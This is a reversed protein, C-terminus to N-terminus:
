TNAERLDIQGTVAATILVTRREKLLEISRETKKILDDIHATKCEIAEVIQRQEHLPPLTIYINRFYEWYLRMRFDAIGRSFRRMEEIAMPTRLLLEVYASILEIKPEAVVYAPSVLGDVTVTGFAGQWARMMNYALDNPIVRKYKERDEILSVKREREDASLENDTIGSHISISLVPLAEQGARSVERYLSAIRKIEWHEPVQGLWEVGSDKMKVNPDLGKAVAHTILAQRKERLLEIFRKKQEILTDIRATENELHRSIINQELYNPVPFSFNEFINQYLHPITSGSNFLICFDTFIKASLVWYLFETTYSNEPRVLFIGSNLCAEKYLGSVLAIKGITGDKTILLDGNRLQIFPDDDYRKQDVCHCNRWDIFKSTFDTGTVLYAYGEDLYEASTLGKWGVRGKLYTTYKIKKVEWGSPVQGLWEVRSDKYVPYPKYLSM